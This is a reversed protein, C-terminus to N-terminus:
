LKDTVYKVLYKIDALNKDTEEMAAETEKAGVWDNVKLCLDRLEVGKKNVERLVGYKYSLAALIEVLQNGSVFLGIMEEDKAEAM